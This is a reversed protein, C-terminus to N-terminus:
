SPFSPPNVPNETIPKPAESPTNPAVGKMTMPSVPQTRYPAPVDENRFLPQLPGVIARVLASM